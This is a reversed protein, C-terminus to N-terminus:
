VQHKESLRLRPKEEVSCLLAAAVVSLHESWLCGCFRFRLKPQNVQGTTVETLLTPASLHRPASHSRGATLSCSFTDLMHRNNSYPLYHEAEHPLELKYSQMSKLNCTM